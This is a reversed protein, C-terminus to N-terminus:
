EAIVQRDEISHLIEHLIEETYNEVMEDIASSAEQRIAEMEGEIFDEIHSRLIDEDDIVMGADFDVEIIEPMDILMSESPYYTYTTSDKQDILVEEKMDNKNIKNMEKWEDFTLHCGNMYGFQLLKEAIRRCEGRDPIFAQKYIQNMLLDVFYTTLQVDTYEGAKPFIVIAHEFSPLIFTLNTNEAIKRYTM